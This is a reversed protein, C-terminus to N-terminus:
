SFTGSMWRCSIWNQVLYFYASSGLTQKALLCNSKTEKHFEMCSSNHYSSHNHKHIREMTDVVEIFRMVEPTQQYFPSQLEVHYSNNCLYNVPVADRQCSRLGLSFCQTLCHPPAPLLKSSCYVRCRQTTAIVKKYRTAGILFVSAENGLRWLTQWM